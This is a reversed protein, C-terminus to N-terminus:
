DDFVVVEDLAAEMRSIIGKESGIEAETFRDTAVGFVTHVSRHKILRYQNREFDLVLGYILWTMEAQALNVELVPPHAAFSSRDVAIATKKSWNRLIKGRCMLEPLLHWQPPPSSDPQPCSIRSKWQTNCYGEPDEMYWEFLQRLNVPACAAQVELAGFDLIQGRDGYAVLVVDINGASRGHRDTLRVETLSTWRTGRPFFFSAADAAIMWNQRFRVPCTIVAHDGEYVSCVGLPDNAKDKTCNPVRNNYPCLRNERHYEAVSTLNNIPFGFVEALPQRPM